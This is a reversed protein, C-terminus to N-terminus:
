LEEGEEADDDTEISAQICTRLREIASRCGERYEAKSADVADMNSTFEDIVREFVEEPTERKIKSRRKM